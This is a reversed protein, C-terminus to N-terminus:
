KSSSEIKYKILRALPNDFKKKVKLSGTRLKM